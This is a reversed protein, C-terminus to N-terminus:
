PRPKHLAAALPSPQAALRMRLVMLSAELIIEHSMKSRGAARDPFIIPLEAVRLGAQQCRYNLEVQFAYGNSRIGPLDLKRLASSRFCKFGGTCDRVRLGLLARAYLNGGRSLLRRRWSWREVGAGAVYRSGIAVDAAHEAAALLAPLYRPQHSFDADMQCLYGYGQDLGARFGAIYASGLGLKGPRSLLRVRPSAAALEAVIAGTGDPSGDDVVLVDFREGQAHVAAVLRAINERENYTPVVVLCRSGPSSVWQKM